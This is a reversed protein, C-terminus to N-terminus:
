SVTILKTVLASLVDPNKLSSVVFARIQFTGREQPIWSIAVDASGNANLTGKQVQLNVTAGDSDRTEVLITFPQSVPNNNKVTTSVLVMSDLYISTVPDDQVDTFSFASLSTTDIGTKLPNTQPQEPQQPAPTPTPVPAANSPLQDNIMSFQTSDTNVSASAIAASNESVFLEFPSTQGPAINTDRTFSFSTNVIKGSGDYFAAAVQVYNAATTGQNTVEGVLHYYGISDIFHDGVNLKLYAPKATSSGASVSLKYTAVKSIQSNDTLAIQFPSKEGPRLTGINTFSFGTAVVTNASDYFTATVQVYNVPTQSDNRVEGAVHLYGISDSFSTSGLISVTGTQASAAQVAASSALIATLAAFLFINQLRM